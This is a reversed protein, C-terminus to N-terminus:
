DEYSLNILSGNLTIESVVGRELVMHVENGNDYTYKIGMMDPNTSELIYNKFEDDTIYNVPSGVYKDGIMRSGTDPDEAYRNRNREKFELKGTNSDEEYFYNLNTSFSSARPAVERRLTDLTITGEIGNEKDSLEFNGEKDMRSEFDRYVKVNKYDLVDQFINTLTNEGVRGGFAIMNYYYFLEILDSGLLGLPYRYDETRLKNFDHKIEEFLASDTDSRPSM